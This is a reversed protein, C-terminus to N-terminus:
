DRLDPFRTQVLGQIVTIIMATSIGFMLIGDTVELPALFKWRGSMVIDGYGLTTYNVASHYLATAFAPFQSLGRINRGM